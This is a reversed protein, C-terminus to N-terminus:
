ARLGCALCEKMYPIVIVIIFSIIIVLIILIIAKQCWTNAILAVHQYHILHYIM